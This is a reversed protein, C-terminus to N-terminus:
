REIDIDDKYPEFPVMEYGGDISRMPPDPRDFQKLYKDIRDDDLSAFEEGSCGCIFFPGFIIDMIKGESDYVARNPQMGNLKGEDNCVIVSNPDELGYYTEIWGGVARQLDELKTGIEEVKAACGPECYVVKIKAPEKMIDPENDFVYDFTM